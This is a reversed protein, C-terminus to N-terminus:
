RAKVFNLMRAVNAIVDVVYGLSTPAMFAVSKGTGFDIVTRTM